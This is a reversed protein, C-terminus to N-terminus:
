GDNLKDVYDTKYAQPRPMETPDGMVFEAETQFLRKTNRCTAVGKWSACLRGPTWGFRLEVGSRGQL